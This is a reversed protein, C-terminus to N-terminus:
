RKQKPQQRSVGSGAGFGGLSKRGEKIQPKDFM